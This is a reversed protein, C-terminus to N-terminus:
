NFPNKREINADYKGLQYKGSWLWFLLLFVLLVPFLFLIFVLAFHLFPQLPCYFCWISMLLMKVPAKSIIGLCIKCEAKMNTYNGKFLDTGAPNGTWCRKRTSIYSWLLYISIVLSNMPSITWNFIAITRLIHLVFWTSLSNKKKKKENM